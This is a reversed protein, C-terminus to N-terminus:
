MIAALHLLVLIRILGHLDGVADPPTIGHAFDNRLNLSQSDALLYRIERGFDPRLQGLRQRVNGDDLMENLSAWLIEATGTKYRWVDIGCALAINRVVREAATVLVLGAEWFRGEEFAVVGPRVAAIATADFHAGADLAEIVRDTSWLGRARLEEVMRLKVYASVQFDQTMQRIEDFLIGDEPRDPRPVPRGDPGLLVVQAIANLVSRDSARQQITTWDPWLREDTAFARLLTPPRDDGARAILQDVAVRIKDESMQFGTVRETTESERARQSAAYLKSKVRAASVADGLDSFSKLAQQLFIMEAVHSDQAREDAEAELSTPVRLRLEDRRAADKALGALTAAHDLLEREIGRAQAGMRALRDAEAILHDAMDRAVDPNGILFSEGAKIVAPIHGPGDHAAERAFDRLLDRLEGQNRKAASSLVAGCALVPAARDVADTSALFERAAAIYEGAARVAHAVFDGGRMWLVDAMRARASAFPSREIRERIYAIAGDPFNSVPPPYPARGALELSPVLAGERVGGGDPTAYMEYLWHEWQLPAAAESGLQAVVDAHAAKYAESLDEFFGPAKVQADTAEAIQKALETM